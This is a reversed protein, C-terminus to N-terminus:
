PPTRRSCRMSTAIQSATLKREDHFRPEAPLWPPMYHSAAVSAILKARRLMEDSSISVWRGDRKYNLTDPRNHKRAVRTFVDVLTKPEGAAAPHNVPTSSQVDMYEVVRNM